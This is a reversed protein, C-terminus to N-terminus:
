ENCIQPNIMYRSRTDTQFKTTDRAATRISEVAYSASREGVRASCWKTEDM